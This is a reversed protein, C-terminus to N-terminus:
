VQYLQLDHLNGKPDKDKEAGEAKHFEHRPKGMLVDHVAKQPGEVFVVVSLVVIGPKFSIVGKENEIGHQAHGKDHQSTVTREPVSIGDSKTNHGIPGGVEQHVIDKYVLAEFYEPIRVVKVGTSDPPGVLDVVLV